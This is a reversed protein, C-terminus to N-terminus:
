DDAFGDRRQNRSKFDRKKQLQGKAKLDKIVAPTTSGQRGVEADVYAHPMIEQIDQSADAMVSDGIATVKLESAAKLQNSTLGYKKQLSKSNYIAICAGLSNFVHLSPLVNTPTDTQYLMKVM